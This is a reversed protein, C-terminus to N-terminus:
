NSSADICQKLLQTVTASSCISSFSSQPSFSSLQPNRKKKLPHPPLSACKFGDVWGSSPLPSPPPSILHKGSGSYMTGAHIVPARPHSSISHKRYSKLLRWSFRRHSVFEMIGQVATSLDENLLLHCFSLWTKKQDVPRHGTVFPNHLRSWYQHVTIFMWLLM